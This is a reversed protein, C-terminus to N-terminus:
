INVHLYVFGVVLSLMRGCQWCAVFCVCFLLKLPLGTDLVTHKQKCAAKVVGRKGCIKLGLSDVVHRSAITLWVNCVRAHTTHTYINHHTYSHIHNQTRTLLHPHSHTLIIVYACLSVRVCVFLSLFLSLSLLSLSSLSFLALLSVSLCLSLFLSLTHAHKRMRMHTVVNAAIGAAAKGGQVAAKGAVQGFEHAQHRLM